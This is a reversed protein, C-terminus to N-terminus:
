NSSFKYNLSFKIIDDTKQSTSGDALTTNSYVAHIYDLKGFWRASVDFAVGAGTAWASGWPREIAGLKIYPSLTSALISAPLTGPVTPTAGFISSLPMGLDVFEGFMYGSNIASPAGAIPAGANQFMYDGFVEAGFYVKSDWYQYGAGLGLGGGNAFIGSGAVDLGSGVGAVNFGGYFGSCSTVTCPSYAVTAKPFDAGFSPSVGVSLALAILLNRM